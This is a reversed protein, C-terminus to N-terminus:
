EEESEDEGSDKDGIELSIRRVAAEIATKISADDLTYGKGKLFNAVYKLKQDGQGPGRYIQEAANVAIEVWKTLTDLQEKNAKSKIWPILFTSIIVCIVAILANALETININGM